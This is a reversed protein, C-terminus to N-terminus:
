SASAFQQMPALEGVQPRKAMAKALWETELDIGIVQLGPPAALRCAFWGTGLDVDLLHDVPQVISLRIAGSASRAVVFFTLRGV